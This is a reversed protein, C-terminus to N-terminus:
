LLKGEVEERLVYKPRGAVPSGTSHDSPASRDAGFPSCALAARVTQVRRHNWEGPPAKRRAM